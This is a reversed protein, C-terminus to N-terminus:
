AAPKDDGQQDRAQRIMARARSLRPGISNIPIGTERAIDGYSHGELEHMRVLRRDDESLPALWHEVEERLATTETAPTAPDAPLPGADSLSLAATARRRQQLKRVAVRRAIVTLYTTLTSRGSFMRLAAADRVILEAFVEAVLDDSDAPSLSIQRRSATRAVVAGILHGFRGVFRDWSGPSKALCAAVLDRDAPPCYPRNSTGQADTM